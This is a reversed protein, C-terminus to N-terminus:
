PTTFVCEELWGSCNRTARTQAVDELLRMVVRELQALEEPPSGDRWAIFHQVGDVDRVVASYSSFCDNRCRYPPDWGDGADALALAIQERGEASFTAQLRVSGSTDDIGGEVLDVGAIESETRLQGVHDVGVLETGCGITLAALTSAIATRM